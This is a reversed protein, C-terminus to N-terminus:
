GIWTAESDDVSPVRRRNEGVSAPPPSFLDIQFDPGGDGSCSIISQTDYGCSIRDFDDSVRQGELNILHINSSVASEAM